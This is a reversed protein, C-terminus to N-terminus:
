LFTQVLWILDDFLTNRLESQKSLSAWEHLQQMRHVVHRQGYVRMCRELTIRRQQTNTEEPNYGLAKLEGFWWYLISM